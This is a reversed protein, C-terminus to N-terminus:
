KLLLQACVCMAKSIKSKKKKSNDKYFYSISDNKHKKICKQQQQQQKLNNCQLWNRHSRGSVILTLVLNHHLIQKNTKKREINQIIKLPIM